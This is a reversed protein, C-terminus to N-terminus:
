IIFITIYIHFLKNFLYFKVSHNICEHQIMFIPQKSKNVWNKKFLLNKDLFM